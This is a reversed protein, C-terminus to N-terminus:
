FRHTYSLSYVDTNIKTDVNDRRTYDIRVGSSETFYWNAGVGYNISEGNGYPRTAIKKGRHEASRPRAM